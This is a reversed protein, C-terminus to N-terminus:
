TQSLIDSVQRLGRKLADIKPPFQTYKNYTAESLEADEFNCGRLDTGV